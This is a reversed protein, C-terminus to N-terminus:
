RQQRELESRFARDPSRECGDRLLQRPEAVAPPLRLLRVPQGLHPFNLREGYNANNGNPEGDNASAQYAFITEKGNAYDQYGTWVRDYSAELAYPGNAQVDRLTTLAAPFLGAYVQVRGKYAKATWSSARGIDRPTAPLLAIAADLDKIIEAPVAAKATQAKRSGYRRRPFLSHQGVCGGPRSTNAARLFIAEGEISKQTPADMEGPKDKVVQKLLRITANSRVIGEYSSGEVQRETGARPTLGYGLSVGRRRESWAPM